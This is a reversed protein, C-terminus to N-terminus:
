FPGTMHTLKISLSLQKKYLNHVVTASGGIRMSDQCCVALSESDAGSRSWCRKQAAKSERVKVRSPEAVIGGVELKAKSSLLHHLSKGQANQWRAAKELLVGTM